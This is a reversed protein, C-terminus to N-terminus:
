IGDWDLRIPRGLVEVGNLKIAEDAEETSGFEIFGCGRFDGSDKHTLWRLGTLMGAPKFFEVITDDDIEYSCNGLFLKKCGEPKEQVRSAPKSSGGRGDNEPPWVDGPRPPCYYIKLPRGQLKSKDLAVADAAAKPDKMELFTSGYFKRTQKDTMWKIFTIGSIASKMDEETITLKLNGCFVRTIKDPNSVLYDYDLTGDKWAKEGDRWLEIPGTAEASDGTARKAASDGSGADLKRKKSAAAVQVLLTVMGSEESVSGSKCVRAFSEAFSSKFAAEDGDGLEADMVAQRVKKLRLPGGGLASLTSLITQDLTDEDDEEESEAAAAAQQILSVMGNHVFIKNEEESCLADLAEAFDAKLQSDNTDGIPTLVNNRLKKLRVPEDGSGSLSSLILKKFDTM